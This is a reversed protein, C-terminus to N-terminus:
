HPEHHVELIPIQDGAASSRRLEAFPSEGSSYRGDNISWWHNGIMIQRMDYIYRAQARQAPSGPSGPEPMVGTAVLRGEVSALEEMLMSMAELQREYAEALSLGGELRRLFLSNFPRAGGRTEKDYSYIDNCYAVFISAIEGYRRVDVNDIFEDSMEAGADIENISFLPYLGINEVRMQHYLDLDPAVSSRQIKSFPIVSRVWDACYRLFRQFTRPRGQCLRRSHERFNQCMRETGTPTPPLEGALLVRLMREILESGKQQGRDFVVGVQDDDFIDDFYFFFVNLELSLKLAEEGALPHFYMPVGSITQFKRSMPHDIGMKVADRLVPEKYARCSPVYDGWRPPFMSPIRSLMLPM